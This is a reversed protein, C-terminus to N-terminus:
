SLIAELDVVRFKCLEHRVELGPFRRLRAFYNTGHFSLFADTNKTLHNHHAVKM